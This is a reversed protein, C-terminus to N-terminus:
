VLIRNIDLSKTGLSRAVQVMAELTFEKSVFPQLAEGSGSCTPTM